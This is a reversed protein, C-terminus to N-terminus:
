YMWCRQVLEVAYGENPTATFTVEDGETVTAPSNLSTTGNTASVTGFNDNSSSFTVKYTEATRFKVYVNTNANVTVTYTKNTGATEIKNTCEADSYWGEVAYGESPIATFTVSKGKEVQAGSAIDADASKASVSGM